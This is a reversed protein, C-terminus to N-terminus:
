SKMAMMRFGVVIFTIGIATMFLAFFGPSLNLGFASDGRNEAVLFMVSGTLCMIAGAIKNV